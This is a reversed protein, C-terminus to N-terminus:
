VSFRGLVEEEAKLWDDLDHGHEFGRQAFIEYARLRIEEQIDVANTTVKVKAVEVSARPYGSGAVFATESSKTEPRAASVEPEAEAVAARANELVPAASMVTGATPLEAAPV